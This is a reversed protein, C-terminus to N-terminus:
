QGHHEPWLFHKFSTHHHWWNRNSNRALLWKGRTDRWDRRDTSPHYWLSYVIRKAHIKCSLFIGSFSFSYKVSATHILAPFQTIRSLIPIIPSGKHIRCQVMSNTYISLVVLVINIKLGNFPNRLYIAIEWNLLKLSELQIGEHM